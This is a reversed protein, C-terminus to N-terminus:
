LSEDRPRAVGLIGSAFGDGAHARVVDWLRLLTRWTRPHGVAHTVMHRLHDLDIREAVLALLDGDDPIALVSNWEKDDLADRISRAAAGFQTEAGILQRCADQYRRLPALRDHPAAAADAAARGAARACLGGFYLGGGSLPKVQAAADGVLLVGDGVIDGGPPVPIVGEIRSVVRGEPFRAALLAEVHPAPNVGHSVALGVRFRGDQAPISWAFFGPAVRRGVFVHVDAAGQPPLEIEVQVARLGRSAAQLGAWSAVQSEPGDAGVLVACSATEEGGPSDFRVVGDRWGAATTGLRVDAGAEAARALLERELVSRDVVLARDSTAQVSLAGGGPAHFTVGRIRRIVCAESAGLVSLTRPSILGACASPEEIRTRRELVLVSAGAAAAVRATVAGAPGGGVVIVDFRQM